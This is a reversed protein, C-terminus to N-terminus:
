LVALVAHVIADLACGVVNSADIAQVNRPVM